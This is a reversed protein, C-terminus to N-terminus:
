KVAHNHMKLLARSTHRLVYRKLLIEQLIWSSHEAHRSSDANELTEKIKVRGGPVGFKGIFPGYKIKALLVKLENEIVTFIVADVAVLPTKILKSKESM